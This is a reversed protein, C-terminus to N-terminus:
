LARCQERKLSIELYKRDEQSLRVFEVGCSVRDGKLEKVWRIVAVGRMIPANSDVLRLAFDLNESEHFALKRCEVCMGSLSINLLNAEAVDQEKTDQVFVAGPVLYRPLRKPLDKQALVKSIALHLTDVKFPKGIIEQVTRSREAELAGGATVVIVPIDMNQSVFDILELGNGDEMMIDTIILDFSAQKIQKIAQNGSNATVVSYARSRLEEAVIECLDVEDEVLLIRNM